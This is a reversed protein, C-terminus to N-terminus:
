YAFFGSFIILSQMWGWVIQKSWLQAFIAYTNKLGSKQGLLNRTIIKNRHKKDIVM